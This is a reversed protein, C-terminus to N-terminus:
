FSKVSARIRKRKLKPKKYPQFKWNPIVQLLKRTLKMATFACKFRIVNIIYHAHCFVHQAQPLYHTAKDKCNWWCCMPWPVLPDKVKKMRRTLQPFPDFLKGKPRILEDQDM